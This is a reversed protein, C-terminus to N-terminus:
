QKKEEKNSKKKIKKKEKKEVEPVEEKIEGEQKRTDSEAPTEEENQEGPAEDGKVEEEVTEETKPEEASAPSMPEEAEQSPQLEMKEAPAVNANAKTELLGIGKEICKIAEKRASRISDQGQTDVNDLKLLNRTLMEDLYLYNKDKPAGQFNEVQELLSSVDKQIAQIQEIPGPPQPKQPQPKQEPQQKQPEPKQETPKQTPPPTAQQQHQQQPKAGGSFRTPSETRRFGFEDEPFGGFTHHPWDNAFKHPDRHVYQTFAEPRRGFITEPQSARHQQPQQPSDTFIRETQPQSQTPTPGRHKPMVPDDRGEVHIPIVRETSGSGAQSRAGQNASPSNRGDTPHGVGMPINVSSTFRKNEPPASMSRQERENLAEDPPQHQALDCTNSQQIPRGRTNQGSESKQEQLVEQDQKEYQGEECDETQTGTSVSQSQQTQFQQHPQTKQENQPTPQYTQGYQPPHQQYGSPSQTTTQNQQHPPSHPPQNQFNEFYEPYAEYYRQPEREFDDRNFPFGFREFRGSSFPREFRRRLFEDEDQDGQSRQSRRPFGQLHQAFEPHRQAIDELPDRSRRNASDFPFGSIYDYDFDLDMPEIDDVSRKRHEVIVPIDRITEITAM